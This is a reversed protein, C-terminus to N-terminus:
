DDDRFKPIGGEWYYAPEGYILMEWESTDIPPADEARPYLWEIWAQLDAKDQDSMLDWSQQFSRGYNTAEVADDHLQYGRKVQSYKNDSGFMLRVIWNM